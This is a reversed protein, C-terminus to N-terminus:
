SAMKLVDRRIIEITEASVGQQKATEAITGAAEQLAQKRAESIRKDSESAAKELREVALALEKLAKPAVPKDEESLKMATDFALNRVIENLLQGVQGAPESGLQGIWMSAIERGQRLKAGVQEMRQSYRNLASKSVKEEGREALIANIRETAELQSIRPDRLLEQLAKLVDPALQEISSRRGM